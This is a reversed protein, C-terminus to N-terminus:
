SPSQSASPLGQPSELPTHYLMQKNTARLRWAHSFRKSFLVPRCWPVVNQARRHTSRRAAPRRRAPRWAAPVAAAATAPPSAEVAPRWPAGHQWRRARTPSSLAEPSGGFGRVVPGSFWRNPEMVLGCAILRRIEWVKLWNVVGLEPSVFSHSHSSSGLFLIIKDDNPPPSVRKAFVSTLCLTIATSAVIM